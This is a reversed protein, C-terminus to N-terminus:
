RHEGVCAALVVTRSLSLQPDARTAEALSPYPVPPEPAYPIHPEPHQRQTDSGIEYMQIMHGYAQAEAATMHPIVANLVDERRNAEAIAERWDMYLQVSNLVKRSVTVM